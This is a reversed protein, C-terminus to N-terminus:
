CDIIQMIQKIVIDVGYKKVTQKGNSIMERNTEFFNWMHEIGKVLAEQSQKVLICNEGDVCFEKPGISETVVCPTGLAMAELVVLCQSEVYSTHVMIDAKEIYPYPNEKRGVLFVVNSVANEQIQQELEVRQEGDGVVFWRFQKGKTVLAKAAAIVNEIHKEPSLRSVTVIDCVSNMKEFPNYTKAKSIVQDIDVMNPIVTIKDKLTPFHAALLEACGNSVVVVSDMKRCEIEYEKQQSDNLNIEGHHWWTIRKKANVAYAAIGTVSPRFSIVCDYEKSGVITKAAWKLKDIGLFKTCLFVFRVWLSKWDRTKICRKICNPVSGYTNHLDFLRVEVKSPIENVYDGLEELLLLEVHYQSYDLHKLVDLLSKEAGGPNMHGNIFLLEKM